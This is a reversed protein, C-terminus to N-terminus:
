EETGQGLLLALDQPDYQWGPPNIGGDQKKSPPQGLTQQHVQVRKAVDEPRVRLYTQTTSVERHRLHRQIDTLTINPDNALRVACTHRFDHLSLNTGLKQNVRTLVARLATYTLPKRSGRATVWLAGLTNLPGIEALYLRLWSFFEGSAAIWEPERSGKSILRVLQNGWDLDAPTMDLLEQARPAASILLCFLARDRHCTLSALLERWLADSFARPTRSPQKQRYANRATLHFPDGPRHHAHRREGRVTNPVPNRHTQGLALLHSYFGHIVSLHHNITAPKYGQALVSKGTKANYSGAPPRDPRHRRYPNDTTRLWLVYARVHAQEASQWDPTQTNLFRLWSLLAYAYSKITAPSCDTATLERLYESVAHIEQGHVDLLIFPPTGGPVPIIEPRSTTEPM